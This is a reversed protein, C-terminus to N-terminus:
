SAMTVLEAPTYDVTVIAAATAVIDGRITRSVDTPGMRKIGHSLESLWFTVRNLNVPEGMLTADVRIATLTVDLAQEKNM